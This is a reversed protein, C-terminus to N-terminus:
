SRLMVNLLMVTNGQTRLDHWPGSGRRGVNTLASEPKPANTSQIKEAVEVQFLGREMGYAKFAELARCISDILVASKAKYEGEPLDLLNKFTVQRKQFDDAASYVKKAFKALIRHHHSHLGSDWISDGHRIEQEQGFQLTEVVYRVRTRAYVEWPVVAELWGLQAGTVDLAYQEGNKLTLKLIGHSTGIDEVVGSPFVWLLNLSRNKVEM